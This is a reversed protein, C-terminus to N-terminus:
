ILTNSPKSFKLSPIRLYQTLSFELFQVSTLIDLLKECNIDYYLHFTLNVVVHWIAQEM